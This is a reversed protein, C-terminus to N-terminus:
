KRGRIEFFGERQGSAEQLIENQPFCPAPCDERLPCNALTSLPTPEPAAGAIQGAFAVIEEMEQLLTPIEEEPVELKALGATKLLDNRTFM